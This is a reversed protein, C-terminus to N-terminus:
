PSVHDIPTKIPAFTPSGFLEAGGQERLIGWRM